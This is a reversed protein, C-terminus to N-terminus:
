ATIYTGTVRLTGTTISLNTLPSTNTGDLSDQIYINISSGSTEGHISYFPVSSNSISINLLASPSAPFPLGTIFVGGTPTGSDNLGSIFIVITVQNGVKTYSGSSISSTYGGSTSNLVPTFSGEEYEALNADTIISNLEALTDINENELYGASSHDGWSYAANWNNLTTSTVGLNAPHSVFVPDTETYSTLYGQTGHDGWGFATDWNAIKAATVAAADSATFVPDSESTLYGGSAHDGWGFATNWNSSNDTFGTVDGIAVSTLYGETSHDGWGFATNWNTINTNTISAAVSAVFIPDTETVVSPVGALDFKVSYSSEGDLELGGTFGTVNFTYYENNDIISSITFYFIDGSVSPKFLVILFSSVNGNVASVLSTVDTQNLDTKNINIQSISSFLSNDDNTTFYGSDNETYGLSPNKAFTYDISFLGLSNKFTSFISRILYNRTRNKNDADSGILFDDLSVQSDIPYANKNSIRTM